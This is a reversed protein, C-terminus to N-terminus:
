SIHDLIKQGQYVKTQNESIVLSQNSIFIRDGNFPDPLVKFAGPLQSIYNSSQNSSSSGLLTTVKLQSESIGPQIVLLQEQLDSGLALISNPFSIVKTSAEKKLIKIDNKTSVALESLILLLAIVLVLMPQYMLFKGFSNIVSSTSFISLLLFFTWTTRIM